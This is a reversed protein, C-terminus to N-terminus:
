PVWARRTVMSPPRMRAMLAKERGPGALPIPVSPVITVGSTVLDLYRNLADIDPAEAGRRLSRLVPAVVASERPFSLTRFRSTQREILRCLPRGDIAVHLGPRFM